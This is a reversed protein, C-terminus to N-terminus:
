VQFVNIEQGQNFQSTFIISQYFKRWFQEATLGVYANDIQKLNAFGTLSISCDHKYTEM